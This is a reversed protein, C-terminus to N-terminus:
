PTRGQARRFANRIHENITSKSKSFLTSMQDQTLWATEDEFHVEVNIAEDDTKFIVIEDKPSRSYVSNHV